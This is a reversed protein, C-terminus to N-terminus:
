LVQRRVDGRKWVARSYPPSVQGGRKQLADRLSRHGRDCSEFLFITFPRWSTMTFRGITGKSSVEVLYSACCYESEKDIVMVEIYGDWESSNPYDKAGMIRLLRPAEPSEHYAREAVDRMAMALRDSWEANAEAIANWTGLVVRAPQPRTVGYNETVIEVVAQAAKIDEPTAQTMESGPDCGAGTAMALAVPAAILLKTRM